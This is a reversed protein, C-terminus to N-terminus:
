SKSFFLQGILARGVREKNKLRDYVIEFANALEFATLRKRPDPHFCSITAAYLTIIETKTTNKFKEPITPWRGVRKRDAVDEESLKGPEHHTWPQHRTMVQYLVNGFGYIDAQEVQVYSVNKIEEPSRWLDGKFWVPSGCAQTMNEKEHRLFIGINFDNWKLMGKVYITNAINIDNHAFLATRNTIQYSHLHRFAQLDALGRALDRAMKLRARNKVEYSKVHDRGSLSAWETVVSQGCFGYENVTYPSATLQDMVIADVAHAHVSQEDFSRDYNLMKLAVEDRELRWTTRWSGATSMLTADSEITKEHLANCTPHIKPHALQECEEFFPKEFDLLSAGEFSYNPIGMTSITMNLSRKKSKSTQSVKKIVGGEDLAVVRPHTQYIKRELPHIGHLFADTEHLSDSRLIRRPVLGTRTPSDVILRTHISTKSSSDTESGDSTDTGHLILMCRYEFGFVFLIAIGAGINMVTWPYKFRRPREKRYNKGAQYRIM